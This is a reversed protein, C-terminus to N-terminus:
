SRVRCRWSDFRDLLLLQSLNAGEGVRRSSYLHGHLADAQENTFWRCVPAGDPGDEDSIVEYWGDDVEGCLVDRSYTHM